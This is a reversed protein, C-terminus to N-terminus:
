ASDTSLMAAATPDTGELSATDESVRSAEIGERAVIAESGARESRAGKCTGTLGGDLSFTGDIGSM